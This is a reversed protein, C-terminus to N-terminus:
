PSVDALTHPEGAADDMMPSQEAKDTMSWAGEASRRRTEGAYLARYRFM